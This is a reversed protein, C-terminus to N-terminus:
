LEDLVGLVKIEELVTNISKQVDRQKLTFGAALKHGGGAFINALENVKVKKSRLSIRIGEDLEIALLAIEVTALSRLYDVIGDIDPMRAGAAEIDKKDLIAVAIKGECSLQLSSLAKELIRLSSLSRRQTFNYAIDKPKAGLDVLKQAIAFVEKDVNDTTFYRTDSLLAAYFCTAVDASMDYLERFFDFATQSASAHNPMVINIDGYYTNSAHHDINIIERRSLNFGLRDLSGCDCAIILSSSYDIQHKIKSFNPLFDLYRPLDKSASVVEVRMSKSLMAYIGLATGITDADPNIHTLITLSNANKIKEKVEEYPFIERTM